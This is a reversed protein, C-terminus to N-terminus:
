ITNKTPKDKHSEGVLSRLATFHIGERNVSGHIGVTRVQCAVTQISCKLLLRTFRSLGTGLRLDCECVSREGVASVGGGGWGM